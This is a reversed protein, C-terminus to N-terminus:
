PSFSERFRYKSGNNRESNRYKEKSSEPVNSGFPYRFFENEDVETRSLDSLKQMSEKNGLIIIEREETGYESKCQKEEYFCAVFGFSLISSLVEIRNNWRKEIRSNNPIKSCKEASLGITDGEIREERNEVIM